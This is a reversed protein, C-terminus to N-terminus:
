CGKGRAFSSGREFRPPFNLWVAEDEPALIVPMWNHIQAEGGARHKTAFRTRAHQIDVNIGDVPSLQSPGTIAM